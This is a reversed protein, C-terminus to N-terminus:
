ANNRKFLTNTIKIATKPTLAYFILYVGIIFIIIALVKNGLPNRFNLSYFGKHIIDIASNCLILGFWFSIIRKIM